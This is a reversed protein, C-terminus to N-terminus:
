ELYLDIDASIKGTVTIRRFALRATLSATLKKSQLPRDAAVTKDQSPPNISFTYATQANLTLPLKKSGPSVSTSASLKGSKKSDESQPITLAASLTPSFLKQKWSAKLQFINEKHQFDSPSAEPTQSLLRGSLTYSFSTSVPGTTFVTGTNIKLPHETETLNLRCFANVGLKLFVPTHLYLSALRSQTKFLLGGKIQLSPTLEKESSTLVSDYPNFFGQAFIEFRKTTLKTDARWTLQYFGFPSEYLATTLNLSASLPKTALGASLQFLTCNHTSTPYYPAKLFWSSTSNSKYYFFGTTISSSLTLSNTSSNSNGSDMDNGALQWAGYLSVVPSSAQPTFWLNMTLSPQWPRPLTSHPLRAEFFVSVPKSYSAHGPLTTTLPAPAALTQTFPSNGSSLEPSNLVTLSGGASLNGTRFTFPLRPFLRATSVAAGFNLKEPRSAFRLESVPTVIRTGATNDDDFYFEFHTTDKLQKEATKKEAAQSAVPAALLLTILLFKRM